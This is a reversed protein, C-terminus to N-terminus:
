QYGVLHFPSSEEETHCPFRICFFRHLVTVRLLGVFANCFAGFEAINEVKILSGSTMSIKTKDIISHGNLCTKSYTEKASKSSTLHWM